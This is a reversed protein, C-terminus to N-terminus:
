RPSFSVSTVSHRKTSNLSTGRPGHDVKPSFLVNTMLPRLFLMFSASRNLRSSAPTSARYDDFCPRIPQRPATSTLSCQLLFVRLTAVGSGLVTSFLARDGSHHDGPLLVLGSVATGPTKSVNPTLL